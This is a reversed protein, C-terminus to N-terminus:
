KPIAAAAATVASAVQEAKQIAPAAKPDLSAVETAIAEGAAVVTGATETGARVSQYVGAGTKIMNTIHGAASIGLLTLLADILGPNQTILAAAVDAAHIAPPTVVVTPAVTGVAPQSTAPQTSVVPRSPTAPPAIAQCGVFTAACLISLTLFALYIRSRTM